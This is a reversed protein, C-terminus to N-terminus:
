SSVDETRTESAAAVQEREGFINMLLIGGLILASGFLTGPPFKEQLFIAGSFLAIVPTVISTMSLLVVSIHKLLYYYLAFALASGFAALYVIAVITALNFEVGRWDEVFFSTLLLTIAGLAMPILNIYIPDIERGYKKVAVVVVANLIASLVVALIGEVTGLSGIDLDNWFIVTLGAFGIAIGLIKSPSLDNTKLYIRSLIAAFFPMVAFTIATLGSTVRGEAWYVLGYPVSFSGLGILLLFVIEKLDFRYKYKRVKLVALIILSALSFRIGASLFPPVTFISVKIALWTTGWIVCILVYSVVLAIGSRRLGM